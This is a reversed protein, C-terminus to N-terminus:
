GAEQTCSLARKEIMNKAIPAPVLDSDNYVVHALDIDVSMLNATRRDEMPRLFLQNLKGVTANTACQPLIQELRDRRQCVLPFVVM